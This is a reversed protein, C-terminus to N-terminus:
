PAFNVELMRAVAVGVELDNACVLQLLNFRNVEENCYILKLRGEQSISEQLPHFITLLRFHGVQTHESYQLGEETCPNSAFLQRHGPKAVRTDLRIVEDFM